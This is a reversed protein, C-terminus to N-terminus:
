VIFTNPYQKQLEVKEEKAVKPIMIMEVSGPVLLGKTSVLNPLSVAKTGNPIELGEASSAQNNYNEPTSASTKESPLPYSEFGRPKNLDSM